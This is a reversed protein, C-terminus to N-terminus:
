LKGKLALRVCRLVAEGTCLVREAACCICRDQLQKRSPATLDTGFIDRKRMCDNLCKKETHHLYTGGGDFLAIDCNPVSFGNPAVPSKIFM